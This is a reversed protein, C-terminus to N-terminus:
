QRMWRQIVLMVVASWMGVGIGAIFASGSFALWKIVLGTTLVTLLVFPTRAKGM